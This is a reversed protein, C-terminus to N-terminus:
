VFACGHVEVIRGVLGGVANLDPAPEPLVGRFRGDDAAGVRDGVLVLQEGRAARPLALEGLPPERAHGPRLLEAPLPEPRDLLHDAALLDAARFHWPDEGRDAPAHEARRDDRGAVVPVLPAVQSRAHVPVRPPRCSEPPASNFPTKKSAAGSSGSATTPPTPLPQVGASVVSM